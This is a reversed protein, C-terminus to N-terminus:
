SLGGDYIKLTKSHHDLNDALSVFRWFQSCMTFFIPIQVITWGTIVGKTKPSSDRVSLLLELFDSISSMHYDQM